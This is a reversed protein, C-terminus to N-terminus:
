SPRPEKTSPKLGPYALSMSVYRTEWALLGVHTVLLTVFLPAREVWSADKVLLLVLALLGFRVVYGGLVAGMLMNLSIRAAWAIIGAAALFNLVVLGVAVGASLAGNAGWILASAVMAVVAVPVARRALDAAVQVEPAPGQQGSLPGSPGQQGSLPGSPGQGGRSAVADAM